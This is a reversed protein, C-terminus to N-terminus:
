WIAPRADAPNRMPTGEGCGFAQAFEPLNALPANVRFRPPAHPDVMVRM